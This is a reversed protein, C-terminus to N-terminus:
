EADWANNYVLKEPPWIWRCSRALRTAITPKPKANKVGLILCHAPNPGDPDDPPIPDYQVDQGCERAAVVSLVAVGACAKGRNIAHNMVQEPTTLSAHDVSCEPDTFAASTIRGTPHVHSPHIRRYVKDNDDIVM